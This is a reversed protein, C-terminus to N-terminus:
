VDAHIGIGHGDLKRLLNMDVVTKGGKMRSVVDECACSVASVDNM